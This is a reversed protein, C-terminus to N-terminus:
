RVSPYLKRKTQPLTGGNKTKLWEIPMVDKVSANNPRMAVRMLVDALYEEPDIGNLSCTAFISYIMAMWKGGAESAVFLWNKRGIALTRIVQEDINNDLPLDGAELFRTLREWNSLGFNIAQGIRSGPLVAFGPDMLAQKISDMVAKSIRIRLSLRKTDDLELKGAFGEVRYLRAILKIIREAFEKHFGVEKAEIFQRRFHVMCLMPVLKYKDISKEYAKYGDIMLYTGPLCGKLFHRPADSGRTTRYDFLAIRRGAGVYVWMYTTKSGGNCLRLLSEDAHIVRGAKLERMMERYIRELPVCLARIWGIMTARTFWIRSEHYIQRQIRYLPLHYRYKSSIVFLLLQLGAMGKPIPSVLPPEAVTVGSKCHRCGFKPRIYDHVTYTAPNREVVTRKVEDFEEKRRGCCECTMEEEPPLIIHKERPYDDPIANRGPHKRRRQHSKVEIFEDEREKDSAPVQEFLGELSLQADDYVVQKESHKGFAIKKLLQIQEDQQRIRQISSLLLVRLEAPDAPIDKESHIDTLTVGIIYPFISGNASSFQMRAFKKECLCDLDNGSGHTPL